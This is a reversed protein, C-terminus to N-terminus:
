QGHQESGRSNEFLGFVSYINRVEEVVNQESYQIIAKRANSGMNKRLDSDEIMLKLADRLTNDDGPDILLGTDRHMILDRTGRVNTGIVPLGTAMAEMVNRPLGERKSVSVLVDSAALLDHVDSRYGLFHVNHLGGGRISNALAKEGPGNGAILLRIDNENLSKWVKLLWEHNKNKNIEGISVFVVEKDSIMLRKRTVARKSESPSYVETNVGVGHTFFLSRGPEYGLRKANDFDESNMTIIADTWRRSLKEASYFLLWNSCPAGRYFHFGHVTYLIPCQRTNRAAMRAIFAAAPTHLHVIDFRTERLIKRLARYTKLNSLSFPSRSFPVEICRIGETELLERTGPRDTKAVAFVEFGEAQLMKM